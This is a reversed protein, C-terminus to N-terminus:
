AYSEKGIPIVCLFHMRQMSREWDEYADSM